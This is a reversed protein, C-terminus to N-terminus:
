LIVLSICTVLTNHIAHMAMSSVLSGRWERALSFGIALMALVPIGYIGQPHIAAFILANIVAAFLVSMWRASFSKLDRLHRYLIGRFVTEEVIPAAVCATLFIMLIMKTGGEAILEQIPHGPTIPSGFEHSEQFSSVLAILIFMALFGPLLLSLTALYTPIASLIEKVPNSCTWGIDERVQSFPIGRFVPWALCILSGFFILLQVFLSNAPDLELTTLFFSSGLSSGFFLVMWLAFTEIYINHNYFRVEFNPLMKRKKFRIGLVILSILSAVGIGLGAIAIIFILVLMTLAESELTKRKATLPSEKPLIALRGIWGLRSEILQRDALPLIDNSDFVGLSYQENLQGILERLRDQDETLTLVDQNELVKKDLELLQETAVQPGELEGKLIAYSLRQEYSGTNFQEPLSQSSDTQPADAIAALQEQGVILKGQMQMTMLEGSTADGGIEQEPFLQSYAVLTFMLFTISTVLLWAAIGTKSLPFSNAKVISAEVLDNEHEDSSTPSAPLPVLDHPDHDSDPETPNITM